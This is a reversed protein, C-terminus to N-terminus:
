KGESCILGICEDFTERKVNGVLRTELEGKGNFFLTVPINRIGYTECIEPNDEIDIEAVELIDSGYAKRIDKLTESVMRCPTCYSNAGLKLILPKKGILDKYTQDTVELVRKEITEEKKETTEQENM